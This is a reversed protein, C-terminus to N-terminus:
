SVTGCPVFRDKACLVWRCYGAALPLPECAGRFWDAAYRSKQQPGFQHVQAAARMGRESRRTRDVLWGNTM